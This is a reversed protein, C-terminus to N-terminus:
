YSTGPMRRLPMRLLPAPPEMGQPPPTEAVAKQATTPRGADGLVTHGGLVESMEYEHLESNRRMYKAAVTTVPRTKNPVPEDVSGQFLDYLMREATARYAEEAMARVAAPAEGALSFYPREPGQYSWVRWYLEEGGEGRLVRGSVSLVLSVDPEYRGESVLGYGLVTIELRVPEETSAPTVRVGLQSDAATLADELGQVPDLAAVADRLRTEATAVEEQSHGHAKVGGVVAGVVAAVPAVVVGLALGFMCFLVDPTVCATAGGVLATGAWRGATAAAGDGTGAVPAKPEDAPPAHVVEVEMGRMSQRLEESPPPVAISVCADLMSAITLTLSWAAIRSASSM